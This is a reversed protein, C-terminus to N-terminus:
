NPLNQREIYVEANIKTEATKPLIFNKQWAGVVWEEAIIDGRMELLIQKKFEM